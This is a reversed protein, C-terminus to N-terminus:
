TSHSPFHILINLKESTNAEVIKLYDETQGPVSREKM